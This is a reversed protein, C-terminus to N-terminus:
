LPLPPADLLSVIRTLLDRLPPCEDAARAFSPTLLFEVRYTSGDASPLTVGAFYTFNTYGRETRYSVICAGALDDWGEGAVEDSASDPVNQARYVFTRRRNGQADCVFPTVSVLQQRRQEMWAQVTEFNVASQELREKADLEIDKATRFRTQVGANCLHKQWIPSDQINQVLDFRHFTCNRDQEIMGGILNTMPELARLLYWENDGDSPKPRATKAPPLQPKVRWGPASFAARLVGELDLAARRSTAAVLSSAQLDFEGFRKHLANFRMAPRLTVGLKFAGPHQRSVLQYVFAARPSLTLEQHPTSKSPIMKHQHHLDPLCVMYRM